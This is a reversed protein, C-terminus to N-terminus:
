KRVVVRAIRSLRRATKAGRIASYKTTYAQSPAVIEGNLGKLNFYYMDNIESQFVEYEPIRM